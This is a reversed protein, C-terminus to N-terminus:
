RKTMWWTASVVVTGVSQLLVVGVFGMAMSFVVVTPDVTTGPDAAVDTVISTMFTGFPPLLLLLVFAIHGASPGWQAAFDSSAKQVEDLGSRFRASLYVAYGMVFVAAAATLLLVLNDDLSKLWPTAALFGGVVLVVPFLWLAIRLNSPTKTM